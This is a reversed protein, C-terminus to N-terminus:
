YLHNFVPLLLLQLKQELRNKLSFRKHRLPLAIQCQLDYSTLKKGPKELIKSTVKFVKKLGKIVDVCNRVGGGSGCNRLILFLPCVDPISVILYWM